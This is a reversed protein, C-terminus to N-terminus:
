HMHNQMYNGQNQQQTVALQQLKDITKQLDSPLLLHYIWDMM